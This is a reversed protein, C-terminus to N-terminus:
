STDSVASKKHACTSLEMSRTTHYRESTSGNMYFGSLCFTAPQSIYVAGNETSLEEFM